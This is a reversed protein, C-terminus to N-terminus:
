YEKKGVGLGKPARNVGGGTQPNHRVSKVLGPLIKDKSGSKGQYYNTRERSLGKKSARGSEGSGMFTM